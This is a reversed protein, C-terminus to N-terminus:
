PSRHGRAQNESQKRTDGTTEIIEYNGRTTTTAVEREDIQRKGNTAEKDAARQGNAHNRNQKENTRRQERKHPTSKSCDQNVNNTTTENKKDKVSYESALGPGRAQNENQKRKGETPM